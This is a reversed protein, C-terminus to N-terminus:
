ERVATQAALAELWAIIDDSEFMPEGDIFLCPVQTRGTRELLRGRASRDMRTDELAVPLDLTELARLVKRCYPCADYKYLVLEPM